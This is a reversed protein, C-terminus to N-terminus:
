AERPAAVLQVLDVVMAVGTVAVVLVLLGTVAGTWDTGYGAFDFPFVELLRLAVALGFWTAVLEALRRLRDGHHFALALNVLANAVLSATLIGLVHVFDDTLFAPWGWDLLRHSVWVVVLNGVAAALRAARRAATSPGRQEPGATRDETPTAAM